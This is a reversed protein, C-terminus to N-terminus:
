SRSRGARAGRAGHPRARHPRPLPTGDPSRTGEPYIGLLEGSASAGAARHQAIGRVGQRRLPRDAAPRDGQLVHPTAWGKLGKGTFYDSKALFSIPRDIM